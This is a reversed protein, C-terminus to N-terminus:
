WRSDLDGAARAAMRASCATTKPGSGWAAAARM